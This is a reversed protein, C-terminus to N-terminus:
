SHTSQSAFTASPTEPYLGHIVEATGELTREFAEYVVAFGARLLTDTTAPGISVVTTEPPLPRRTLLFRAAQPSTFVVAHPDTLAPLTQALMPSEVTDYCVLRDFATCGEALTVELDASSAQGCPFLIRGIVGQTEALFQEGMAQADAVDSTFDVRWGHREMDAKTKRGVAALRTRPDFRAAHRQMLHAFEDVTVQSTFFIWDYSGLNRLTERQFHPDGADVAVFVPVAAIDFVQSDFRSRFAEARQPERTIWIRTRGAATAHVGAALSTGKLYAVTASVMIEDNGGAMIIRRPHLPDDTGLFAGLRLGSDTTEAFTGLALQCGGELRRLVEREAHVARHLAPQDLRAVASRTEEDGARIQVALTGQGPAPAFLTEPLRYVILDDLPLGLRDLGAAAVLVADYHGEHLKRVRTPVNGRLSEVRLDSRLYRLQAIRRASSTGVRAGERLRLLLSDNLAHPAILLVDRRDARELLAGLVLGDPMTTQLDKLSHVALDIVGALLADEIEKTFFGKGPMEALATHPDRDGATKIVVLEAEVGSARRLLDQVHRAQWLALDSGRTGIKM